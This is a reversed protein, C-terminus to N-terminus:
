LELGMEFRVEHQILDENTYCNLDFGIIEYGCKQYFEIAGVNCSQTELAIMRASKEIAIVKAFSLMERGLGQNRYSMDVYIETIRLRKHWEEYYVEIFGVLKDQAFYGYAIADEFHPPYLDFDFAKKIPTSLKKKEITFILKHDQYSKVIDYYFQTEYEFPQKYGEYSSKPLHTLKM